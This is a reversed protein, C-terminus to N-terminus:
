ASSQSSVGVSVQIGDNPHRSLALSDLVFLQELELGPVCAQRALSPDRNGKAQAEPKYPSLTM